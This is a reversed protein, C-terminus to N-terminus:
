SREETRTTGCDTCEFHWRPDALTPDGVWQHEHDAVEIDLRHPRFTLHVAWVGAPLEDGDDDNAPAPSQTTLTTRVVELLQNAETESLLPADVGHWAVVLTGDGHSTGIEHARLSPFRPPTPEPTPPKTTEQEDPVADLHKALPLAELEDLTFRHPARVLRTLAELDRGYLPAGDLVDYLGDGANEIYRTVRDAARALAPTDQSDEDIGDPQDPIAENM